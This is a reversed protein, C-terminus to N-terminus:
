LDVMNLFDSGALIVDGVVVVALQAVAVAGDAAIHLGKDAVKWRGAEKRMFYGRGDGPLRRVGGYPSAGVSAVGDTGRRVPRLMLWRTGILM